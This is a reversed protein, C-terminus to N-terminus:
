PRSPILMLSQVKINSCQLVGMIPMYPGQSQGKFM